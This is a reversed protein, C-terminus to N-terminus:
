IEYILYLYKNSIRFNESINCALRFVPHFSNASYDNFSILFATNGGIVSYRM